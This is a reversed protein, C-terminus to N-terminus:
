VSHTVSNSTYLGCLPCQKLIKKCDKRFHKVLDELRIKPLASDCNPCGDMRLGKYLIIIHRNAIPRFNDALHSKTCNTCNHMTQKITANDKNCICTNCFIQNCEKCQLYGLPERPDYVVCKCIMCEFLQVVNKDDEASVRLLSFAIKIADESVM